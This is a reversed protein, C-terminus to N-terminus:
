RFSAVIFTLPLVDSFFCPVFPALLCVVTSLRNLLPIKIRGGKSEQKLAPKGIHIKVLSGLKSSQVVMYSILSLYYASNAALKINGQKALYMYIFCLAVGHM